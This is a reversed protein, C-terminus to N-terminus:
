GVYDGKLKDFVIDTMLFLDGIPKCEGTVKDITLYPQYEDTTDRVRDLDLDPDLNKLRALPISYRRKARPLMDTENVRDCGKLHRDDATKGEVHLWLFSSREKRGICGRPARVTIIDGENARHSEPYDKVLIAVECVAM